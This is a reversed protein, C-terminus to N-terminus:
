SVTMKKAQVDWLQVVGKTTGIALVEPQSKSNFELSRINGQSISLKCLQGIDEHYNSNLNKFHVRNGRTFFVASNASCTLHKAVIDGSTPPSTYSITTRPSRLFFKASSLPYVFPIPSMRLSTSSASRILGLSNSSGSHQANFDASVFPSTSQSGATFSSNSTTTRDERSPSYYFIGDSTGEIDNFISLPPRPLRDAGVGISSLRGRSSPFAMASLRPRKYPSVSVYSEFSEDVNSDVRKRIGLGAANTSTRTSTDSLDM